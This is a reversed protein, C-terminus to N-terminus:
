PSIITVTLRQKGWLTALEKTPMFIDFRGDYRRATRDEVTFVHNCIVVKSGLPVCRPAAITRGSCPAVGSATPHGTAIYATIIASLVNTTM